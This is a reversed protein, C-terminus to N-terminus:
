LLRPTIYLSFFVALWVADVFHWYLVANRVVVPEDGASRGRRARSVRALAFGLILLGMLVHAAHFGTVTFFTSGYAHASPGFSKSAFEIGQIGLFIAGLIMSLILGARLRSSSGRRELDRAGWWATISSALLIVTNPIALRLDPGGAPPWVGHSRAQLYFYSFLLYAFFVGENLVFLSMAWGGTGVPTADGIPLQTEPDPQNVTAARRRHGSPWLWGGCCALAIGLGAGALWWTQSVFGYFMLLLAVSTAFPWYSDEPMRLVARAHADLPTTELTERGDILLPGSSLESRATEGLREEWLPHRSRVVPMAAFNYAPPPSSTSWELTGADWPNPGAVAGRRRSYFVNILFLLVGLAFVYAGLTVVLNAPGWGSAADYTYIRRPMGHLGLLHMPFFATNFGVFMVWFSWKGLRESMMRGTIKPFWYYVAGVVPFVNIGILVYHLHAVVFYSDTLQWDFPIAATMVGSVGGVVFLFIFGAMFLFPTKFQPRGHYITALWAFVAVASPVTILLSAAGFFSMSRLPLGTAFMHHVWVGFGLIGTSVTALAVYTYGVLPRRCFVPLIDSVMGMAPLVIIYVWPHGFIWFLHQWLMPQGGASPDFFHMGLRRDFFLFLLDATLAPVAFLIAVSVTLTGWVFIPLRNVSMGPARMKAITGVFNIAGVTTSIGLFILGLAYFDINLGPSFAKGTLPVYAFWGGDPAQGVLFSSYIFAGSALFVWYSFANLRPYAMDRAGLMLPWLYNSFGSLVPLAYLFIMTVGHMTFLQNYQEPTVVTQGPVALQLRMIAAAVGGAILFAFSTVLYRRGIIKHDVTGLWGRLGPPTEWTERLRARVPPSVLETAM